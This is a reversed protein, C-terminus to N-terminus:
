LNVINGQSDICLIIKGTGTPPFFASGTNAQEFSCYLLKGNHVNFSTESAICSVAQGNFEGFRGFSNAGSSCYIAKASSSFTSAGFSSNGSSCRIAFGSFSESGFSNNIAKCGEYYGNASWGFSISDAECNIYTGASIMEDGANGFSFKGATCNIYTALSESINGFSSDGAICNTYYNSYYPGLSDIALKGTNIGTININEGDVALCYDGASISPALLIANPEGSLSSLNVFETDLVLPGGLEYLGPALLVTMTNKDSLGNGNPTASVAQSYASLLATGNETPTGKSDVFIYNEGGLGIYDKINQGTVSKSAYSGGLDVSTELLDTAGLPAAKPTLDTIKYSM